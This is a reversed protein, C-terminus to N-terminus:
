GDAQRARHQLVIADGQQRSPQDGPLRGQNVARQRAHFRREKDHQRQQRQVCRVAALRRRAMGVQRGRPQGQGTPRPGFQPGRQRQQPSIHPPSPALQGCHDPRPMDQQRGGADGSKDQEVQGQPSMRQGGRKVRLWGRGVSRGVGTPHTPEEGQGITEQAVHTFGDGRLIRQQEHPQAQDQGPELATGRGLTREEDEANGQSRPDAQERRDGVEAANTKVGKAAGSIEQWPQRNGHCGAHRRQPILDRSRAQRSRARQLRGHGRRRQQAHRQRPLCILQTVGAREKGIVQATDVLTIDGGRLPNGGM